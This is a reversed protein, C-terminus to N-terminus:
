SKDFLNFYNYKVQQAEELIKPCKLLKNSISIIDGNKVVFKDRHQSYIYIASERTFGMKELCVVVKNCTGYLASDIQYKGCEKYISLWWM